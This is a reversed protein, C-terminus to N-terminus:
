LKTNQLEYKQLDKTRDPRPKKISRVVQLPVNYGRKLEPM